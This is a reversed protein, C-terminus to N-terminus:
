AATDEPHTIRPPYVQGPQLFPVQITRRLEDWLGASQWTQWSAVFQQYLQSREQERDQELYQIGAVLRKFTQENGFYELTRQREEEQFSTLFQQWVYCDHIEGLLDQTSRVAQLCTQLQDAYLPAFTEMTYRLWKAAIRMEHLETLKDPQDVIADYTLLTELRGSIAQFSQQYLGPTFVYIEEARSAVPQLEAAMDALLHSASLKEMAATLPAQLKERKQRLRLILRNIGPRYKTEPLKKQIKALWELQVDTDRADGLATTVKRISKLWKKAKKSPLCAEFLPITARLRADHVPDIDQSGERVGAIEHDLAGLHKLLVGAGYVCAGEDPKM